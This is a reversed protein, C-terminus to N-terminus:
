DREPQAVLNSSRGSREWLAKLVELFVASWRDHSFLESRVSAGECLKRWMVDDHCLRTMAAQLEQAKGPEILLGCTEDVVEPLALWKTAIVPIGATFSEAIVGPYGEGVHSTPLLLCDYGRLTALVDSGALVGCYTARGGSEAIIQDPTFEDMPGWVDVTADSPLGRAAALIMSVGKSRWLHGLYVFRRCSRGATCQRTPTSGPPLYTSFWVLRGSTAAGLQRIMRRTQVLVADANLVFRRMWWRKLHSVAQYHDGYSGGFLRVVSPRRAIKSLLVVAAGLTNMGRDSAHVSVLDVRPLVRIVKWLARVAVRINAVLKKSDDGRSVNIVTLEVDSAASLDEVLTRFHRTDGGIPPPLPGILLLRLPSVPM